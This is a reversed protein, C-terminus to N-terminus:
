QRTGTFDSTGTCSDVGDSWSWSSNGDFGDNDASVTVQLNTITTTGGEQPFSGSWSVSRGSITGQFTGSPTQVTLDNGTQTILADFIDITIGDGCKTGDDESSIRWTGTMDTAPPDLTDGSGSTPTDDGGCGLLGSLAFVFLATLSRRALM